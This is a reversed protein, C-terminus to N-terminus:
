EGGGAIEFCLRRVLGPETMPGLHGTDARVVEFGDRAAQEADTAYAPSLQVYRWPVAPLVDSPAPETLMDWPIRPLESRLRQRVAPDPLIGALAGPFWTDWPPLRGGDAMARLQAAREPPVTELWSRGPHPLRADVFVVSRVAPGLIAAIGALLPGARSHGVLVVDSSAPLGACAAESLSRYFPPVLAPRLDPVIAGPTLDAVAAWSLPSLLPSHVLLVRDSMGGDYGPPPINILYRAATAATPPTAARM